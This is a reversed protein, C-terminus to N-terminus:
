VGSRAGVPHLLLGRRLIRALDATTIMGVVRDGDVVVVVLQGAVPRKAFLDTAPDGPRCVNQDPLPIAISRILQDKRREPSILALQDATVVGTPAGDFEVVPFVNQKSTALTQQVFVEVDHWAPASEPDPTM